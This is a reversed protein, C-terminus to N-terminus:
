CRWRESTCFRSNLLVEHIRVSGAHIMRFGDYWKIPSLSGVLLSVFANSWVYM